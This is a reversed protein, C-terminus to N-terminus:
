LVTPRIIEILFVLSLMQLRVRSRKAFGICVNAKNKRTDLREANCYQVGYKAKMNVTNRKLCSKVVAV